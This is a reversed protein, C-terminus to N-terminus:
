QARWLALKIIFGTVATFNDMMKIFYVMARKLAAVSNQFQQKYQEAAM